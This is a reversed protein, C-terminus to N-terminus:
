TFEVSAKEVIKWENGTKKLKGPTVTRINKGLEILNMYNCAINLMLKANAIAKQHVTNNNEIIEFSADSDTKITIKYLIDDHMDFILNNSLFGTPTDPYMSYKISKISQQNPTSIKKKTTSSQKVTPHTESNKKLTKKAKKKEPNPTALKTVINLKEKTKTSERELEEFSVDNHQSDLVIKKAQTNKQNDFVSDTIDNKDPLNESVIKIKQSSKVGDFSPPTANNKAENEFIVRNGTQKKETTIIRITKKNPNSYNQNALTLCHKFFSSNIFMGTGNNKLESLCKTIEKLNCEFAKKQNKDLAVIQNNLRNKLEELNTITNALIESPVLM